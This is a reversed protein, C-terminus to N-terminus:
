VHSTLRTVKEILEEASYPKKLYDDARHNMMIQQIKGDELGTAVIVPPRQRERPDMREGKVNLEILMTLGSKEHMAVDLIILDPRFKDELLALAEEGDVACVVEFGASELRMRTLECYDRDDDVVLVTKHKGGAKM